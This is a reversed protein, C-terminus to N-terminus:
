TPKQHDSDNGANVSSYEVIKKHLEIIRNNVEAYENHAKFFIKGTKTAKNYLPEVEKLLKAMEKRDELKALSLIEEKTYEKQAEAIENM